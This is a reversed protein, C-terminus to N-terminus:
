LDYFYTVVQRLGLGELKRIALIYNYNINSKECINKHKLIEQHIEEISIKSEDFVFFFNQKENIDNTMTLIFINM